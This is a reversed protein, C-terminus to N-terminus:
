YQRGHAFFGIVPVASLNTANPVETLPGTAASQQWAQIKDTTQNYTILYGGQHGFWVMQCVKFGFKASGNTATGVPYGGTPYSADLQVTGSVTGFNNNVRSFNRPEIPLKTNSNDIALTNNIPEDYNVIAPM